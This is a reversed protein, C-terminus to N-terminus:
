KGMGGKWEVLKGEVLMYERRTMGRNKGEADTYDDRIMFYIDGKFGNNLGKETRGMIQRKREGEPHGECDPMDEAQKVAGLIQDLDEVSGNYVINVNVKM